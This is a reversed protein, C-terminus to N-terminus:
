LETLLRAKRLIFNLVTEEKTIIDARGEMGSQIICGQKQTKLELHEPQIIVNYITAEANFGSPATKPNNTLSTVADPSIATVKGMLIGYDTYPCASVRMQVQQDVEVKAIEQSPVSAKIVLPTEKPAIQAITDGANVVQKTNRLNLQLITGTASARIVTAAVETETQQLEKRDRNIQNQLELIRQILQEREQSLRSLNVEGTAREQSIKGEIMKVKANSPNLSTLSSRRRAQAADVAAYLRQIDQKQAEITAKKAELTQQQQNVAIQSEEYQDQSLAGQEVIPQYRNRRAIAANLVAETSKLEAQASKLQAKAKQLERQVQRLNAEAEQVQSQSIIQRDQYDRQNEALEAQTSIIIREIRNKEAAIQGDLAIIQADIQRIQQKNKILNSELQSKQTQLRSDDLKAIIDGKQISQNEAVAIHNITGQAASQVLRLEGVPRITAATKITVKYPTFAALSVAIGCTAVLFLGGVTAWPSIVPFFEDSTILSFNDPKSQSFM